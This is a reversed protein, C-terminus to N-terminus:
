HSTEFEAVRCEKSPIACQRWAQPQAGVLTDLAPSENNSQTSDRAARSTDQVGLRASPYPKEEPLTLRM